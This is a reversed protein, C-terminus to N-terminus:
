GFFLGIIWLVPVLAIVAMLCTELTRRISRARPSFWGLCLCLTLIRRFGRPLIAHIAHHLRHLCLTLDQDYIFCFGAGFFLTIGALSIDAELTLTWPTILSAWALAGLWGVYFASAVRFSSKRWKVPVPYPTAHLNM